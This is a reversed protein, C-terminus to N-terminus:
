ACKNIKWLHLEMRYLFFFCAMYRHEIFESILSVRFLLLKIQLDDKIKNTWLM